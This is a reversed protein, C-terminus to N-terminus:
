LVIDNDTNIIYNSFFIYPIQLKQVKFIEGHPGLEERHSKSGVRYVILSMQKM